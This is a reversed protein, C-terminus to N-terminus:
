FVLGYKLAAHKTGESIDQHTSAEWAHHTTSTWSARVLHLHQYWQGFDDWACFYIEELATRASQSATHVGLFAHMLWGLGIRGSPIM